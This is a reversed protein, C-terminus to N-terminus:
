KAERAISAAELRDILDLHTGATRMEAASMGEMVFRKWDLGHRDFFVSKAAPCIKLTRLDQVTIM